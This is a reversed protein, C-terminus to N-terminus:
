NKRDQNSLNRYKFRAAFQVLALSKLIVMKLSHIEDQFTM